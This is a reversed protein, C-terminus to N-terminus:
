ETVEGLVYMDSLSGLFRWLIEVTLGREHGTEGTTKRMEVRM